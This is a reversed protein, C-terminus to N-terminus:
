FTYRTYFAFTHLDAPFTNNPEIRGPEGYYSLEYDGALSQDIYEYNLGIVWDEFYTIDLGARLHWAWIDDVKIDKRYGGNPWAPAGSARWAEYDAIKDDGRFGNFWIPNADFDASIKSTGIGLTPKLIPHVDAHYLAMLRPGNLTFTGDSDGEATHTDLEFDSWGLEIRFNEPLLLHIRLSNVSLPGTQLDLERITGLYYDGVSRSDDLPSYFNLALGVEVNQELFLMAAHRKQTSATLDLEEGDSFSKQVRTPQHTPAVTTAASDADTSGTLTLGTLLLSGVIARQAFSTLRRTEYM